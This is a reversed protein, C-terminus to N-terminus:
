KTFLRVGSPSVIEKLPRDCRFVIDFDFGTGPFTDIIEAEAKFIRKQTEQDKDPIVILVSVDQGQTEAFVQEVQPIASLRDRIIQMESLVPTATAMNSYRSM